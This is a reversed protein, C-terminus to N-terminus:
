GATVATVAIGFVFWAILFWPMGELPLLRQTVLWALGLGALWTGIRAFREDPTPKGLAARPVPPPADDDYTPLATAPPPSTDVDALHTTTM